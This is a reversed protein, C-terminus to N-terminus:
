DRSVQTVPSSMFSGAILRPGSRIFELLCDKPRCLVAAIMIMSIVSYSLRKKALGWVRGRDEISSGLIILLKWKMDIKSPDFCM